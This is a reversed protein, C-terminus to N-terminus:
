SRRVVRTDVRLRTCYSPSVIEDPTPPLQRTQQQLATRAASDSVVSGGSVLARLGQELFLYATQKDPLRPQTKPRAADVARAAPTLKSEFPPNGIVVDFESPWKHDASDAFTAPDFFDGERLNRGRLKDLKLSDWIVPPELADCIALALSFATLDVAGAELEVGHISHALIQKLDDTTPSRWNHRSRWHIVLRKFAGVLFIGSGCAPDLVREKGTMRHYPMVQDLLLSALLPPTYVAGHGTVFQQYLRSIVEVPIYEFSFLEWFHRQGGLVNADALNALRRLEGKTLKDSEEGLTFVDGNFKNEFYRLLRLVEEVTGDRLIDRFSRAGAHFRGFLGAPFVARDELYKILVMLVLLRRRIPHKAGDLDRDAEVIAQILSRHAAADDKALKQNDPDDWFTGESLRYASFRRRKKALADAIAAATKIAKGGAELPSKDESPSEIHDAARYRAVGEEWFDPKRACSLIDIRTPWAVYVLPAVGHLWLMHHLKALEEETLRQQSNDVVYAAVQSSRIDNGEADKFLRFFVYDIHKFTEAQLLIAREHPGEASAPSHVSVLGDVPENKADVLDVLELSLM